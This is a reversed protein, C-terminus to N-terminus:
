SEDLLFVAGARPGLTRNGAEDGGIDGVRLAVTAGDPVRVSQALTGRNLAVIAGTGSGGIRVVYLGDGNAVLTSRTGRWLAPLRRRLAILRAYFRHIEHNQDNDWLMPLRSEEPRRSGDPYELDRDQSLGVETGYYIIPPHPLTFQCIAALQLTRVDNRAVWLFRNMDHNDLFSPLVFDDPFYALHRRLFQDFEPASITEFGFFARMQQLLLFDLTGDLRGQYSRQLAATEVVEGITLSDPKAARTAARFRSWFGPTPGNAYDLRFGDAGLHLWFVAADILYDRASPHEVNVQPMSSVGFFSRYGPPDDTFTFWGREPSRPDALASQFAPHEDSLHNAVFDLIVRIDRAHAAEFLEVLDDTTGLRPEVSRYDTADYGHPTPSPFVPSLWLCTVGLDAIYPLKEVVGRLTGGRFDSPTPADNWPRGDGPSFRDLFVHYFVAGRVWQPVAEHDVHYAFIVPDGTEPDAWIRDGDITEAGIRYRVFTGAPQAPLDGHWLQRYGWTLTDWVVSGPTLDLRPGDPRPDSGDLTYLAYVSEASVDSGASATLTVPEGPGPDSPEIQNAHVLGRGVARLADLRLDDTALTGFIFDHTVDVSM